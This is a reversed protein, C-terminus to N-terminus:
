LLSVHETQCFNSSTVSGSILRALFSISHHTTFRSLKKGYGSRGQSYERLEYNCLRVTEIFRVRRKEELVTRDADRRFIRELTGIMNESLGNYTDNRMQVPDVDVPPSLIRISTFSSNRNNVIYAKLRIVYGSVSLFFYLFFAKRSDQVWSM